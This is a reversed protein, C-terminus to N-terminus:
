IRHLIKKMCGEGLGLSGLYAGRGKSTQRKGGEEQEGQIVLFLSQELSWKGIEEFSRKINEM